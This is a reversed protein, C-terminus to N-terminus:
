ILALNNLEKDSMESLKSTNNMCELLVRARIIYQSTPEDDQQTLQTYAVM